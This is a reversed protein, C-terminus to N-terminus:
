PLDGRHAALRARARHLHSKVTNLPLRHREALERLSVGDAHFSVLLDRELPQLVALCRAVEERVEVARTTCAATPEVPREPMRPERRRRARHDQLAHLAAQLLWAPGNRTADFGHRLKWVKTFTEQLVDDADAGCLRELVRLLRPRQQQLLATFAAEDTSRSVAGLVM